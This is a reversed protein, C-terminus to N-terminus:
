IEIYNFNSFIKYIYILHYFFLYKILIQESFKKLNFIYLNLIVIKKM